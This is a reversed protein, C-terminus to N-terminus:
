DLKIEAAQNGESPLFVFCFMRGDGRRTVLSVVGADLMQTCEHIPHMCVSAIIFAWGDRGGQCSLTNCRSPNPGLITLFFLAPGGNLSTVKMEMGDYQNTVISLGPVIAYGSAHAWPLLM